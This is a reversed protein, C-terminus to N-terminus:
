DIWALAYGESENGDEDTVFATALLEPSGHGCGDPLGAKTAEASGVCSGDDNCVLEIFAQPHAEGFVVLEVRGGMPDLTEDGQPDDAEVLAAVQDPGWTGDICQWTGSEVYPAVQEPTTDETDTDQSDQTDQVPPATDLTDDKNDCTILLSLAGVLTLIRAELM